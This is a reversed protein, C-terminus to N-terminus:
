TQNSIDILAVEVFVWVKNMFVVDQEGYKHSKVSTFSNQFKM